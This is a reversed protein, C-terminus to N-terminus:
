GTNLSFIFFRNLSSPMTSNNAPASISSRRIQFSTSITPHSIANMRLEFQKTVKGEETRVDTLLEISVRCDASPRKHMQALLYRSFGQTRQAWRRPLCQVAGENERGYTYTNRISVQISSVTMGSLSEGEHM